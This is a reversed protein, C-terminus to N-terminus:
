WGNGSGYNPADPFSPMVSWGPLTQYYPRPVNPLYQQNWGSAGQQGYRPRQSSRFVDWAMNMTDADDRASRTQWQQQATPYSNRRQKRVSHPVALCSTAVLMVAIAVLYRM